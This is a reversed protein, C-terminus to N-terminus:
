FLVVWSEVPFEYGAILDCVRILANRSGEIGSLMVVEKFTELTLDPLFIGALFAAAYVMACAAMLLSSSGV